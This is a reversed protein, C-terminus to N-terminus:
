PICARFATFWEQFEEKTSTSLYMEEREGANSIVILRLTFPRQKQVSEDAVIAGRLSYPKGKTDRHSNFCYIYGRKLVIHRPIWQENSSLKQKELKHMTGQHVIDKMSLGAGWSSSETSVCSDFLDM